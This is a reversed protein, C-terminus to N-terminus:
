NVQHQTSCLKGSAIRVYEVIQYRIELPGDKCIRVTKRLYYYFFLFRVVLRRVSIQLLHGSDTSVNVTIMMVVM